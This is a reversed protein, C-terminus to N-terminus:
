AADCPRSIKTDRLKRVENLKQLNCLGYIGQISLYRLNQVVPKGGRFGPWALYDLLLNSNIRGPTQTSEALELSILSPTMQICIAMDEDSIHANELSMAEVSNETRSLFAV